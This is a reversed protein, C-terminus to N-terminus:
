IVNDNRSEVTGPKLTASAVGKAPVEQLQINHTVFPM